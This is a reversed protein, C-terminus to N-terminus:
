IAISIRSMEEQKTNPLVHAYLDMTMALSSHGLITKLTQPQMGQEIARTAFTDRFAHCSFHEIYVGQKKLQRLISIISRNVTALNTYRGYMSPFVLNDFSLINTRDKMTGLISYINENMPVDRISTKTKPTGVSLKADKDRTTTKTVHIVNKKYDIDSWQLAAVEGGRMGTLLMFAMFEYYFDGKAAAMFAAQEEETLARHITEAASDETSVVYSVYAAPSKSIIEAGVASNLIEKLM